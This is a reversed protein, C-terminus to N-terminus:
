DCPDSPSGHAPRGHDAHDIYYSGPGKGVHDGLFVTRGVSRHCWIRLYIACPLQVTGDPTHTVDANTTEWAGVAGPGPDFILWGGDNGNIKARYDGFTTDIGIPQGNVELEYAAGIGQDDSYVPDLLPNSDDPIIRDSDTWHPTDDNLLDAPFERM